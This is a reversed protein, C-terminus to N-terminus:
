LVNKNWMIDSLILHVGFTCKLAIESYKKKSCSLANGFYYLFDSYLVNKEEEV